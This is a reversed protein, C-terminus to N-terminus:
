LVILSCVAFAGSAAALLAQRIVLRKVGRLRDALPRGSSRSGGLTLATLGADFEQLARDLDGANNRLREFIAIDTEVRMAYYGQALLLAVATAGAIGPLVVGTAHAAIALGALALLLGCVTVWRGGRLVAVAVSLVWDPSGPKDENM